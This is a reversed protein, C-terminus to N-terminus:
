VVMRQRASMAAAVMLKVSKVSKGSWWGIWRLALNGVERRVDEREFAPKLM